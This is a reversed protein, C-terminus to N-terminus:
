GVAWFLVQGYGAGPFKRKFPGLYLFSCLYFDMSPLNICCLFYFLWLPLIAMALFSISNVTPLLPASRQSLRKLVGPRWTQEVLMKSLSGDGQGSSQKTKSSTQSLIECLNPQSQVWQTALSLKLNRIREGRDGLHQSKYAHAVM